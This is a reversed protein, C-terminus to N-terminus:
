DSEGVEVGWEGGGRERERGGTEQGTPLLHADVLRGHRITLLFTTLQARQIAAHRLLAGQLLILLHGVGEQVGVAAFTLSVCM